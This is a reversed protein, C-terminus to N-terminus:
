NMKSKRGAFIIYASILAFGECMIDTYKNAGLVESPILFIGQGLLDERNGDDENLFRLKLEDEKKSLKEVQGIYESGETFALYHNENFPKSNNEQKALKKPTM